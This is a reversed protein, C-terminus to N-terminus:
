RSWGSLAAARARVSARARDCEACGAGPPCLFVLPERALMARAQAVVAAAEALRAWGHGVPGETQAGAARLPEDLRGFGECCHDPERIPVACPRGRVEVVTPHATSYPVEALAEAVHVVTNAEHGVGLLLVRGGLEVVRGPPSFPGHPPELPQPACIEVARPGVAAFSGGPHGSRVVGPQQWFLEATIGMEFTPTTLPDFVTTGDTMTPMVLTGGPRIAALLAAVLTLPGGDIPRVARFSTHVELVDGRRVGLARLQAVLVEFPIPEVM